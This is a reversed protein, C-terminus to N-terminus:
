VSVSTLSCISVDLLESCDHVSGTEPNYIQDEDACVDAVVDYDDAPICELDDDKLSIAQVAALLITATFTRM